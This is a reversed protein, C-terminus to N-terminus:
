GHAPGASGSGRPPPAAAEQIEVRLAGEGRRARRLVSAADATAPYDGRHRKRAGDERRRGAGRVPHAEGAPRRPVRDYGRGRRGSLERGRPAAQDGGPVLLATNTEGGGRGDRRSGDSIWRPRRRRGRRSS